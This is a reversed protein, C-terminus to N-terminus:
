CPSACEVHQLPLRNTAPTQFNPPHNWALDMPHHQIIKNPSHIATSHDQESPKIDIVLVELAFAELIGNHITLIVHLNKVLIGMSPMKKNHKPKLGFRTYLTKAKGIQILFQHLIKHNAVNQVTVNAKGDGHFDPTNYHGQRLAQNSLCRSTPRVRHTPLEWERLLAQVMM